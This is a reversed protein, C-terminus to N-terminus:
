QETLRRVAEVLQETQMPEDKKDDTRIIRPPNFPEFHPQESGQVKQSGNVAQEGQKNDAEGDKSLKPLEIDDEPTSLDIMKGEIQEDEEKGADLDTLILALLWRFVFTLAFMVVFVVLGRILATLLLNHNMVALTFSLLGSVLGIGINWLITGIM